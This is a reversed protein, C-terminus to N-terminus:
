QAKDIDELTFEVDFGSIVSYDELLPEFDDVGVSHVGSDPKYSLEEVSQFNCDVHYSPM